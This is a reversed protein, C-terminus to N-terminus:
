ALARGVADVVREVQRDSMSSFIPLSVVREFEASAVPFDAPCHNGLERWYSHLHLPIFHVSTGIGSSSMSAVFQDRDVGEPVRVVYLHWAHRSGVPGPAPLELGTEGFAADYAAAIRQRNSQMELARDLQVLGLAAAPDPLNYKYGPAVVDYRWAPINSRYRDFADRDIGHLRMTRIRAALAEDGTVVM